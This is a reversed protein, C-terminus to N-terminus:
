LLDKKKLKPFEIYDELNKEGWGWLNTLNEIKREVNIEQSEMLETNVQDAIDRRLKVDTLEKLPSVLSEPPFCILAMARELDALFQPNNPSAARQALHSSAFDLAPQIDGEKYGTKILEILQLRLLAFHLEPKRDLLEPNIENIKEIAKQIDGEHILRVIRRREGLTAIDVNPNIGAEQAFKLATSQYGHIVLYNMIMSNFVGKSVQVENLRSMWQDDNYSSMKSDEVINPIDMMGPDAKNSNGVYRLGQSDRSSNNYNLTIRLRQHESRRRQLQREQLQRVFSNARDFEGEPVREIRAFSLAFESDSDFSRSNSSNHQSM